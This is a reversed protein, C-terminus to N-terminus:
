QHENKLKKINTTALSFYKEADKIYKSQPYSDVLEQYASLVSVFREEQKEKLSAKAYKYNAKVIMYQYEDMRVSMPYDTQINRYMVTAAKYQSIDYYLKAALAAKDELKAQTINIYSNAEEVHKSDPHQSVYQRLVELAKETNSQMVTIKPSMKYIAYAHMFAAEDANASQPYLDTYFKFYYSANNYDKLQYFSMAFKYLMPEFNKTGKMVPMLDKYLENAHLFDKKDFYKNAMVLKYNVDNSRKVKDYRSCSALLILSSLVVVNLVRRFHM